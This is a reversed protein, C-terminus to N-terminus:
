IVISLRLVSVKREGITSAGARHSMRAVVTTEYANELGMVTAAGVTGVTGADYAHASVPTMLMICFIIVIASFLKKM